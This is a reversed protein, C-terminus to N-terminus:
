AKLSEITKIVFIVLFLFVGWILLLVVLGTLYAAGEGAMYGAGFIILSPFTIVSELSKRFGSETLPDFLGGFFYILSFIFYTLAAFFTTILTKRRKPTM